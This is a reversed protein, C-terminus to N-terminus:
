KMKMFEARERQLETLLQLPTWAANTPTLVAKCIPPLGAKRLAALLRELKEQRVCLVMMPEALAAGLDNGGPNPMMALQGITQGYQGPEVPMMEVNEMVCVQRIKRRIEGEPIQFLLLKGDMM